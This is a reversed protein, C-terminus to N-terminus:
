LKELLCTRIRSNPWLSSQIGFFQHKQIITSFVRSLGKSLLSILGALGLPFWGQINMPLVSALASAGISQGGSAFIKSKESVPFSGWALFSQPCSSFPTVPHSPQITDNVWHIHTQAFGPLYHLVPFDPTHQLGHHWVSESMVSHSFLLLFLDRWPAHTIKIILFLVFM